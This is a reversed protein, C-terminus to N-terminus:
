NVDRRKEAAAIESDFKFSSPFKVVKFTYDSKGQENAERQKCNAFNIALADDNTHMAIEYAYASYHIRTYDAKIVLYM